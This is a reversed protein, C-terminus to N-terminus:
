YMKLGDYVADAGPLVSCSKVAGNDDLRSYRNSLEVATPDRVVIIFFSTLM